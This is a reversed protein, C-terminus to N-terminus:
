KFLKEIFAPVESKYFSGYMHKRDDNKLDIHVSIISNKYNFGNNYNDLVIKMTDYDEVAIIRKNSENKLEMSEIDEPVVILDSIINLEKLIKNTKEDERFVFTNGLKENSKNYFEIDCVIFYNNYKIDKNEEFIRVSNVIKDIYKRDVITIEKRKQNSILKINKIDNNKVKFIDEWQKRVELSDFVHEYLDSVPRIGKFTKNKIKGNSYEIKYTIDEKWTDVDPSNYTLLKDYIKMSEEINEKEVLKCSYSDIPNGDFSLTVTKIEGINNNNSRNCGILLCNFIVILAVIIVMLKKNM